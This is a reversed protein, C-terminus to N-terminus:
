HIKWGQLYKCETAPVTAGDWARAWPEGETIRLVMKREWGNGSPEPSTSTFHPCDYEQGTPCNRHPESGLASAFARFYCFV